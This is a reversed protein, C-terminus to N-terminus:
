TNESYAHALLEDVSWQDNAHTGRKCALVRGDSGILFDAPLGLHGGTPHLNTIPKDGRNWWYGQRVMSVVAVPVARPDLVARPLSGVGFETYLAKAPDGVLAFPVDDVYRRLEEDTSHFVAVECIGAGSIEDHRRVMSHLHVNCIPCGAFRRFQLHVLEDRDPIPIAEGSVGILERAAIVSGVDPAADKSM